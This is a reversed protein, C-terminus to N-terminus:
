RRGGAGGAGRAQADQDGGRGPAFEVGPVEAPGREYGSTDDPVNEAIAETEMPEPQPEASPVRTPPPPNVCSPQRM